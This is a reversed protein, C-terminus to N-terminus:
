IIKQKRFKKLEKETIGIEKLVDNTHEGLQPPPTEISPTGHNYKFATIPVMLTKKQIWLIPFNM